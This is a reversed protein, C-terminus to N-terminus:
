AQAKLLQAARLIYGVGSQVTSLVSLWAAAMLGVFLWGPLETASGYWLTQSPSADQVFGFESKALAMLSAVVAACQFVMKLKGAMSASFDAGRQELFSRLATVLLERGVVVVSMWAPLGSGPEASLFIFTGCIIIKDVFPDFIRGLQTVQNYKRAWYGDIWDTSAALLFVAMAARYCGLPILAFVVIALTLRMATLTNPVNWVSAAARPSKSNM